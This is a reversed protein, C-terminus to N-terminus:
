KEGKGKGWRRTKGKKEKTVKIERMINEENGEKGREKEQWECRKEETKEKKDQKGKRKGKEKGNSKRMENVGRRKGM